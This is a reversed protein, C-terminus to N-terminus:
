DSLRVSVDEGAVRVGHRSAGVRPDQVLTGTRSEYSWCHWPCTVVGDESPFGVHLDKVSLVTGSTTRRQKPAVVTDAM